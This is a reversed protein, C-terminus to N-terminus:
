NYLSFSVGLRLLEAFFVPQPGRVIPYGEVTRPPIGGNDSALANELKVFAKFSQVKFAVFADASYQWGLRDPAETVHFVNTLPAFAYLDVPSRAWSDVGVLLKMADRFLGFEAYVSQQGTFAPLYVEDSLSPSRVVGRLDFRLFRYRLRTRYDVTPIAPTTAAARALGFEGYVWGEAFVELYGRVEADLPAYTLAGGLQTHTSVPLDGRQVLADNVGVTTTSWPADTREFLAFAAVGFRDRYDWALQGRVRGQGARTGLALDASADLRFQRRLEGGVEGTIGLLTERDTAEYFEADFRQTGGYASVRLDFALQEARTPDTFYELEAQALVSTATVAYRNGRDDLEFPALPPYGTGPDSNVLTSPGATRQAIQKRSLAVSGAWGRPRADLQEALFYRHRYAYESESGETRYGELNPVAFAPEEPFAVAGNDSFVYGGPNFFGWSRLRLSAYARHRSSDPVYSVTAGLRIREGQAVPYRNRQGAQYTRLYSFGLGWGNAFPAGFLVDVQGDDIEGGQNYAAYAYPVNLGFFPAPASEYAPHTPQLLRRERRYGAGLLPNLAAPQILNNLYVYDPGTRQVRDHRVYRLDLASDAVPFQRLPRAPDYRYLIISDPLESVVQATATDRENLRQGSPRDISRSPGPRQAAALGVVGFVGLATTAARLWRGPAASASTLSRPLPM